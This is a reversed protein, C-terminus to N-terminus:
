VRLGRNENVVERLQAEGERLQEFVRIRATEITKLLEQAKLQSEQGTQELHQTQEKAFAAQRQVRQLDEDHLVLSLKLDESVLQHARQEEQVREQKLESEGQAL